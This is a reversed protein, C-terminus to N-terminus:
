DYVGMKNYGPDFQIIDSFGDTQKALNRIPAYMVGRSQFEDRYVLDLPKNLKDIADIVRQFAVDKVLLAHTTFSSFVRMINKNVEIPPISGAGIKYHNGGLMIVEWDDPVDKLESLRENLNDVFACDDELIIAQRLKDEQIREIAKKHSQLLAYEGGRLGTPNLVEFCDVAKIREAQFRFKDAESLCHQWRDERRDLNIIFIDPCIDNLTM